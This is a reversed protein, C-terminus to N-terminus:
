IKRKKKLKRWRMKLNFIRKTLGSTIFHIFNFNFSNNFIINFFRNILLYTFQIDEEDFRFLSFSLYIISLHIVIIVFLITIITIIINIDEKDFRFHYSYISIHIITNIITIIITIKNFILQSCIIFFLYIYSLNFQIDVEDFM